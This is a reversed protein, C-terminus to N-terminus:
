DVPIIINGALVVEPDIMLAPKLLVALLVDFLRVVAVDVDGGENMKPLLPVTGFFLKM